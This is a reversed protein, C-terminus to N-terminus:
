ATQLLESPESGGHGDDMVARLRALSSRLVRSVYSQSLGLMEGIEQQSREEVYRLHLLERERPDLVELAEALDTRHESLDFGPDWTVLEARPAATPTDERPSELESSTRAGGAEIAQLVEDVALDTRQAIEPLHALEAVSGWRRAFDLRVHWGGALRRGLPDAALFAELAAEDQWEAFAALHRLQVRDPSVVPAGLRMQTLCELHHLGPGRPPAALARVGTGVPVTALHFSHVPM